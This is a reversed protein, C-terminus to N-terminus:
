ARFTAADAEAEATLGVRVGKTLGAGVEEGMAAAQSGFGKSFWEALFGRRGRVEKFLVDKGHAVVGSEVLRRRMEPRLSGLGDALGFHVAVDGTFVDGHFLDATSRMVPVDPNSMWAKPMFRADSEGGLPPLVMVKSGAAEVPRLAGYLADADAEDGDVSGASAETLQEPSLKFVAGLRAGRQRRVVARFKDHLFEVLSQMHAKVKPDEPSFPDMGSKRDGSSTIRRTMGLKRLAEEAGFSGGIVGISGIVSNEDVLIEDAACAIYYGGSAAVDEVFAVVPIGTEKKALMIAENILSSQAPSGGPSNIILAVADPVTPVQGPVRKSADRFALDRRSKADIGFAQEIIPGIRALSLTRQETGSGITGQLRVVRVLAKVAAPQMHNFVCGYCLSSRTTADCM